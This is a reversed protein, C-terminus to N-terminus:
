EASLPPWALNNLLETAATRDEPNFPGVVAMALRGPVLLRRAASQLQNCGLEAAAQLDDEISRHYGVLEGWGHRMSMEDAHDRSFELDFCFSKLVRQLEDEDVPEHRMATLVVLVERIALLLNDPNVSLDVSLCGTDALLNLNAEVHYTLGLEERLRLMLRSTSGWSLLRRWIRMAFADPDHRGPLQLSFQINVQSSSDAVWVCQPSATAALATAALPASPSPGSWDAFAATLAQQAASCELQGAVVLVTNAPAYHQQHFQVLADLDITQLSKGTGVTPLRLPHGPWLLCSTLVDPNIMEGQENLDELAEEIIIRRETELGHWLPRCLLSAFLEAGTALHQPHLRSFYCTMEADTAANVTGGIAEFARELLLSDPYDRSGRFLMHELFHAIGAVEENEYRSGVGVYCAMECVHLHPQPVIIIRLGNDLRVKTINM